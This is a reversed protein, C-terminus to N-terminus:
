GEADGHTRLGAAMAAVLPSGPDISTRHVTSESLAYAMVDGSGVVQAIVHVMPDGALLCGALLAGNAAAALDDVLEDVNTIGPGVLALSGDAIDLGLSEPRTVFFALGLGEAMQQGRTGVLLMVLFQQIAESDSLDIRFLAGEGSVLGEVMADAQDKAQQTFEM